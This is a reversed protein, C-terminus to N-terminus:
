RLPRLAEIHRLWADFHPCEPRIRNLGICNAISSGHLIKDYPPQLKKLRMSPHTEPGDNIHEPTRAEDRVSQLEDVFRRWDDRVEAFCSVDSFLLAEFEYPQIHPFFREARCQSREIAEQAFMAEIARCRRSPDTDNRSAAVGPFDGHLGYLDFFTTVYTDDRQRLTNRLYRLVRERSLAGGTAGVSTAILRPQLSIDLSTFAPALVDRIFTEETQGEGVVVVEIVSDTERRRREDEL